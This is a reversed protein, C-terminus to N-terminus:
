SPFIRQIMIVFVVITRIKLKCFEWNDKGISSTKWTFGFDALPLDKLQRNENKASLCALVSAVSYM